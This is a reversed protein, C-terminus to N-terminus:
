EIFRKVNVADQEFDVVENFRDQVKNSLDIYELDSMNNIISAVQEVGQDLDICVDLFDGALKDKYDNFNLIVPKGVAMWNHIVHGYGDGHPKNHYGFRSTQMIAAIESINNVVGNPCAAGFAGFAYDPLLEKLRNFKEPQPLINVFSTIMKRINAGLLPRFVKTDFEQRYFVVNKGIPVEFPKVSAMVNDVENWPIDNHWGINGIHYILKANPKHERILRKYAQIHAPISAIIIDIDMEKFQELTICDYTNDNLPPTGDTPTSGPKLFQEVTGPYNNYPEAIKWYGQEFWELGIPRYVTHGLRDEFLLKLSTFLSSHHFDSFIQLKSM